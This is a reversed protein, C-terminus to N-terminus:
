EERLAAPRAPDRSFSYPADQERTGRTTNPRTAMSFDLRAGQTLEAHGLWNRGVPKGNVRLADVYRGDGRARVALTRGNELKVTARPFLPTGLVDGSQATHM